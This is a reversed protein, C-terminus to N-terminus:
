LVAAKKQGADGYEPIKEAIFFSVSESVAYEGTIKMLRGKGDQVIFPKIRREPIDGGAFFDDANM